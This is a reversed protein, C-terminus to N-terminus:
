HLTSFSTNSLDLVVATLIFRKNRKLSFRAIMNRAKKFYPVYTILNNLSLKLNAFFFFSEYINLCACYSFVYFQKNFIDAIM